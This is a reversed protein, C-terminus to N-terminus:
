AELEGSLVQSVLALQEAAEEEDMIQIAFGAHVIVSQGLEVEDVLDLRVKTQVGNHETVGLQGDRSVLKMPIGLCM